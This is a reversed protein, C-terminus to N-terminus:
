KFYLYLSGHYNNDVNEKSDYAISFGERNFMGFEDYRKLIEFYENEISQSVGNEQNTLVDRDKLCFVVAATGAPYITWFGAHTYKFKMWEGAHEAAKINADVKLEASVDTYVVLLNNLQTQDAYAFEEAIKAFGAAIEKQYDENYTYGDVKLVKQYDESTHLMIRLRWRGNKDYEIPDFQYNIARVGYRHFLWRSFEQFVPTLSKERKLLQKTEDLLRADGYFM